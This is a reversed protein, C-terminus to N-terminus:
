KKWVRKTKVYWNQINSFRWCPLPLKKLEIGKVKKNVPYLYNPTYLFIAPVDEIIIKQFEDYKKVREERDLSQRAEELLNDVRENSYCSLNLGPDRKQSSHWFSFPDIEPSLIEGFLLAQYERPRIFENIINDDGVINLNVKIGLEEWQNKLIEAVEKLEKQDVTTLEIEFDITEKEIKKELVGDNDEDEWGNKRLIEKAKNIDFPYSINSVEIWDALLPSNVIEGENRLVKSIIEKKDVAYRLAERASKDSIVKSKTQNFFIAYYRPLNIRYININKSLESIESPYIKELGDIKGSNLDNIASQLDPYFKFIIRQIYPKKFYYDKNAIFNISKIEGQTNREFKEFKYPGSGIPKLNYEALPFNSASIGNWLHSPLIGFTLNHLFPAYASKLKLEIEWLGKKEIKVGQLNSFLPSKYNPDQIIKITYIVDDSTLPKNDHWKVDKKLFIDYTLGDESINYRDVLDPILNGNTDYKFLSSYVLRCLNRDVDNTQALVPNIYRPQGVIGEIYEGKEKPVLKTNNLYNFVALYSSSLFILILASVFIIEEKKSFVRPLNSWQSFSPFKNQFCSFTSKLYSIVFRGGRIISSIFHSIKSM